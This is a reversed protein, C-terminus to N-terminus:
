KDENINEDVYTYISYLVRRPNRYLTALLGKDDKRDTNNLIILKIEAYDSHLIREVMRFIWYPVILSDLFFAVRIKNM